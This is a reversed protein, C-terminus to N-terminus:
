KEPKLEYGCANLAREIDAVSKKGLNRMELLESKTYGLLKGITKINHASLRTLSRIPIDLEVIPTDLPTKVQAAAKKADAESVQSSLIEIQKELDEKQRTLENVKSQLRIVEIKPVACLRLYYRPERLKRVADCKIQRVREVGVGFVEGIKRYTLRQEYRMRIVKQQREDLASALVNDLNPTFLVTPEDVEEKNGAYWPLSQSIDDWLNQPWESLAM